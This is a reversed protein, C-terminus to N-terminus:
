IPVSHKRPFVYRTDTIRTQDQSITGALHKFFDSTSIVSLARLNM